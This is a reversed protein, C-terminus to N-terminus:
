KAGHGEVLKAHETLSGDTNNNNPVCGKRKEIIKSDKPNILFRDDMKHLKVMKIVAPM